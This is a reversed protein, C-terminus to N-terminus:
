LTFRLNIGYNRANPSGQLELGRINGAGQTNVEPDFPANPAYFFLNRGSLSISAQGFPTRELLSKPLSYGLSVERLRYATADYVNLESQLGHSGWFSQADVQIDNARLSGDANRIVGPIVRPATFPM